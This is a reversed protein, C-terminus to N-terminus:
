IPLMSSKRPLLNFDMGEKELKEIIPKTLYKAANEPEIKYEESTELIADIYTHEGELVLSNIRKVFEVQIKKDFLMM